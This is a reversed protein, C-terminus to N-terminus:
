KGVEGDEADGTVDEFPQQYRECEQNPCLPPGYKATWKKTLRVVYECSPCEAKRLRTAQKKKELVWPSLEAHPYPGIEEMMVTLRAKLEESATTATAKGELGMRHALKKFTNNHKTGKPLVAHCLEHVLVDGARLGDGIVPSIFIEFSHDGSADCYFCQGIVPKRTSTAGHSPFGVSIRLNTPLPYGAIEFDQRLQDTLQHLWAERNLTSM